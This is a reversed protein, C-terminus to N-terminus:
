RCMGKRMGRMPRHSDLWVRQEENLLQRIEHHLSAREKAIEVRLESIEEIQDHIADLNAQDQTRMTQLQAAKERIQNRLPLTQKRMETNLDTISSKQEETLDPIQMMMMGGGAGQGRMGQRKPGSQAVVMGYSLFLVILLSSIIKINKM